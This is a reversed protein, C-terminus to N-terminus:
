NDVSGLTSNYTRASLQAYENVTLMLKEQKEIRIKALEQQTFNAM